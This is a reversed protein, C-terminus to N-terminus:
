FVNRDFLERSRARHHLASAKEPFRGDTLLSRIEFHHGQYQARKVFESLWGQFRLTNSRDVVHNPGCKKVPRAWERIIPRQSAFDVLNLRLTEAHRVSGTKDGVFPRKRFRFRIEGAPHAPEQEL